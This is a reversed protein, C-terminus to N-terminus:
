VDVRRQRSAEIGDVDRVVSGPAQLLLLDVRCQPVPLQKLYCAEAVQRIDEKRSRTDACGGSALTKAISWGSSSAHCRSPFVTGCSSIAIVVSASIASMVSSRAASTRM